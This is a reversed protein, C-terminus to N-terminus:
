ESPSFPPQQSGLPRVRVDLIEVRLADGPRAGEVWVPGTAPNVCAPDPCPPPGAAGREALPHGGLADLTELVFPVGPAVRVAPEASAAFAHLHQAAALRVAAPM